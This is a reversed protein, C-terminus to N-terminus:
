TLATQEPVSTLRQTPGNKNLVAHSGIGTGYESPNLLVEGLCSQQDVNLTLPVFVQFM